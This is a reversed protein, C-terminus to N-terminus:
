PPGGSSAVKIYAIVDIRQKADKIGVFTMKTGPLMADPKTIWTDMRAADWNFGAAKMQPSFAFGPRVGAKEGFIGYLNPGTMVPGGKVVTHCSLCKNFQLKGAAVDGTNYPAPLSALLKQTASDGAPPAVPLSPTPAAPPTEAPPPTSPTVANAVPPAPAEAVNQPAPQSQGCASLLAAGALLPSLVRLRM